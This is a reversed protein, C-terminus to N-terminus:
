QQRPTRVDTPPSPSTTAPATAPQPLAAPLHDACMELVEIASISYQAVNNTTIDPSERLPNLAEPGEVKRINTATLRLNGLTKGALEAFAINKTKMYAYGALRGVGYVNNVDERVYSADAGENGTTKDKEWIEKPAWALRCYQLWAKQWGAHPILENLEFVVEAGGMITPLNYNGLEDSVQFLKGTKPDYGFVMNRGSRFGYSMAAISDLGNVIKDRWKTDGTREYETMWNGVYALWDPGGRVRAPYKKEEETIPQALRMPDYEIAKYDSNLMERMVDGTREDGTLYYYFRRYAAQSIRAEKAGCGWHRVNHRSGLGAFRGIHYCDVESTHRTMAEAMRYIDAKGTRLFMYWLWMDTGLESNDWAYGGMDYRWEHRTTDYTHMVDGFDWYGYWNWEDVANQYFAVNADLQDEVERKLPTARDPLSWIGFAHQDHLYRPTCVLMPPKAGLQAQTASQEKTPVGASPYLMLESTRAVGVPSSFGPQVDEYVADLGHAMTDYHRLDMAPGDPSWLWATLEAADSSAKHIELGSPYSQWFNKVGIGLGGSVDGVFAYGSSRSGANAPIYASQPNTRKVITFGDPSLQSLKFDDWVAWDAMLAQGKEDFKERNPIRKGAIQDPYVDQKTQPDNLVRRGRMPQIPESWLGAGEGSFRVHRNQMQERMPVAFTVGLARIFDKQEDGDYVITHVMRVSEQGAYFYLRVVFPLFERTGTVAQHVGEIKVVARVPGQQELTVKQVSDRFETRPAVEAIGGDAGNQVVCVLRGDRAVERGDVSMSEILGGGWKVIRCQLKGTDIDIRMESQRVTIKPSNADATAGPALTLSNGADTGAAAAFASWKITGDAWYALPWTQLPLSKGDANKLSFAQEKKVAGQPWPVGFTVGAPTAPAAGDLWNITVPSITQATVNSNMLIMCLLALLSLCGRGIFHQM